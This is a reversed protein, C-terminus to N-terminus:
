QARPHTKDYIKKLKEKTLHTYIQTTALSSHGLLEQVVKLDAGGELLHTAFSHRFTHPTVKKKIGAEKTYRKIMREVSRPTINGGNKNIFVSKATTRGKLLGNRGNDIYKRLAQRAFSGMLVIREKAGKGYVLIENQGFDLDTMKLDTIESIRMGSAYLLELIAKDRQGLPTKLRPANLMKKIEGAYLFTPLRKELKPTHLLEFPNITSKKERMLYKFFSRCAIIKRALSRRSLKKKELFLLYSRAFHYDMRSLDKSLLSRSKLYRYFQTLDQRYASVTNASLNRESRIYSIFSNILDIM